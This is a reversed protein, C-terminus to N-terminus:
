SIKEAVSRLTWRGGRFNVTTSTLPPIDVRWFSSPPADLVLIVVARIVSPHTVALIRRHETSVHALWRAVRAILADISEGAPPTTSTDTLWAIMDPEGLDKLDLGTWHGYDIDALDAVVAGHLGLGAASQRTRREPAILVSDSRATVTAADLDRLGIEDVSEDSNFIGRRMAATMAHSVLSLRTVSSGMRTVTTGAPGAISLVM